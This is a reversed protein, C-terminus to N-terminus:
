RTPVPHEGTVKDQEALVVQGDIQVLRGSTNAEQAMSKLGRTTEVCARERVIEIHLIATCGTHPRGARWLVSVACRHSEEDNSVKETLSTLRIDSRAQAWAEEWEGDPGILNCCFMVSAQHM